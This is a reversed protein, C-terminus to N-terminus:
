HWIEMYFAPTNYGRKRMKVDGQLMVIYFYEFILLLGYLARSYSVLPIM